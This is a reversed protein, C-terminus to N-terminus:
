TKVWSSDKRTPSRLRGQEVGEEQSCVAATTSESSGSGEAKESRGEEECRGKEENRGEEESRGKEENRGGEEQLLCPGRM